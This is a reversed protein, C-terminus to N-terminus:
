ILFIVIGSASVASAKEPVLKAWWPKPRKSRALSEVMVPVMLLSRPSMKSRWAYPLAVELAREPALAALHARTGDLTLRLLPAPVGGFGSGPLVDVFSCVTLSADVYWSYTQQPRDSPNALVLGTGNLPRCPAGAMSDAVM